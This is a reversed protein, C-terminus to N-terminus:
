TYSSLSKRFVHMYVFLSLTLFSFKNALGLCSSIFIFYFYYSAKLCFLIVRRNVLQVDLSEQRSLSPQQKSITQVSLHSALILATMNVERTPWSPCTTSGWTWYAHYLFEFPYELKRWSIRIFKCEFYSSLSCQNSILWSCKQSKCLVCTWNRSGVAQIYSGM